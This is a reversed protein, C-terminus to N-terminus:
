ERQRYGRMRMPGGGGGRGKFATEDYGKNACDKAAATFSCAKSRLSPFPSSAALRAWSSSSSPSHKVHEAYCAGSTPRTGVITASQTLRDHQPRTHEFRRSRCDCCCGDNPNVFPVTKSKPSSVPTQALALPLRLLLMMFDAAAANAVVTADTAAAAATCYRQRSPAARSVAGNQRKDATLVSEATARPNASAKTCHQSIPPTRPTAKSQRLGQRKRCQKTCLARTPRM